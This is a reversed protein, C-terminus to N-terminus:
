ILLFPNVKSFGQQLISELNQEQQSTTELLTATVAADLSADLDPNAPSAIPETTQDNVPLPKGATVRRPRLDDDSDTESAVEVPSPSNVFSEDDTSDSRQKRKAAHQSRTRNPPPLNCLVAAASTSPGCGRMFSSTRNVGTAVFNKILVPTLHLTYTSVRTLQDNEPLVASQIARNRREDKMKRSKPLRFLSFQCRRIQSVRLNQIVLTTGTVKAEPM